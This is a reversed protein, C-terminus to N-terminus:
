DGVVAKAGGLVEGTGTNQVFGIIEWGKKDFGQPLDVKVTGNTNNLVSKELKRVIQVHSLTRGGNEGHEVRTQASKQLLAIYLAMNRDTKEVSYKVLVQKAAVNADLKLELGQQKALNGKIANRLVSEESGVFEMRGNVIIQPTYVSQIHLYKAYDEQRKSYDANSFADKWGLNNWYDVHYALIYVPRNEDEKEIKAVLQDAPPCSSCGESTFLEIVAFGKDDSNVKNLLRANILITAGLAAVFALPLFTFLKTQKMM